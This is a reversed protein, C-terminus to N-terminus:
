ALAGDTSVYVKSGDPCFYNIWYTGSASVTSLFTSPVKVVTSNRGVTNGGTNVLLINGTQGAALGSFDLTAPASLTCFFNNVTSIDFNLDNDTTITSTIRGAIISSGTITTTM